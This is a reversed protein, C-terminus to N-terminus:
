KNFELWLEVSEGPANDLTDLYHLTLKSKSLRLVDYITTDNNDIIILKNDTFSYPAIMDQFPLNLASYHAYIKGDDKIDWYSGLTFLIELTDNSQPTIEVDIQKSINWKGIISIESSNNDEKSCSSVVIVFIALTITFKLNNMVLYIKPQGATGM